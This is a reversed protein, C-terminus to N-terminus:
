FLHKELCFECFVEFTKMGEETMFILEYFAKPSPVKGPIAFYEGKKKEILKASISEKRYKNRTYRLM